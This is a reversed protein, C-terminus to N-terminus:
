QSRLSAIWFGEASVTQFRRPTRLSSTSAAFERMKRRGQAPLGLRSDCFQSLDAGEDSRDPSVFFAERSMTPALRSWVVFQAFLLM